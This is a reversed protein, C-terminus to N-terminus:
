MFEINVAANNDFMVIVTGPYEHIVTLLSAENKELRRLRGGKPHFLGLWCWDGFLTFMGNEHAVKVYQRLYRKHFFGNAPLRKRYPWTPDGLQAPTFKNDVYDQGFM